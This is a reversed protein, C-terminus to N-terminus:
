GISRLIANKQNDKKTERKTRRIHANKVEKDRIFEEFKKSNQTVYPEIDGLITYAIECAMDHSIEMNESSKRSILEHQRAM